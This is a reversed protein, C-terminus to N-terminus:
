VQLVNAPGKVVEVSFFRETWRWGGQEFPYWGRLLKVNAGFESLARSQLLCFVREDAHPRVPDSDHLAGCTIDSVVHWGTQHLAQSEAASSVIVRTGHSLKWFTFRIRLM